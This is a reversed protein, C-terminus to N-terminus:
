AQQLLLPRFDSRGALFVQKIGGHAMLNHKRRLLNVFSNPNCQGVHVCRLQNGFDIGFYGTELM